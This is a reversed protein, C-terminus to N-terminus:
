NEQIEHELWKVYVHGHCPLPDCFCVLIKDRLEELDEPPGLAEFAEIAERRTMPNIIYQNGWKSGRGIYVYDPDSEWDEHINKINVVKTM